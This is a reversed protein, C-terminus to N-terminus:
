RLIHKIIITYNLAWNSFKCYFRTKIKQSTAAHTIIIFCMFSQKKTCDKSIKEKVLFGRMGFDELSNKHHYTHIITCAKTKYWYNQSFFLLLSRLSNKLWACYVLLYIFYKVEVKTELAIWDHLLHNLSKYYILYLKTDINNIYLNQM